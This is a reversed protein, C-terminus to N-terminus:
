ELTKGGKKKFSKSTFDSTFKTALVHSIITELMRLNWNAPHTSIGGEAFACQARNRFM